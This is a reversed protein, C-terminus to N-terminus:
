SAPGAAVAEHAHLTDGDFQTWHPAIVAFPPRRVGGSPPEPGSYVSVQRGRPRAIRSLAATRSRRAFDRWDQTHSSTPTESSRCFFPRLLSLSAGCSSDQARAPERRRRISRLRRCVAARVPNWLVYRVCATSTHTRRSRGNWYRDGVCHSSGTSLAREISARFRPQAPANGRGAWRRAGGLLLHFHNSMLAWAYVDWSVGAYARADAPLSLDEAPRRRFIQQGNDGRSGVHYLGPESSALARPM